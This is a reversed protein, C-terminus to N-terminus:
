HSFKLIFENTWTEGSELVLPFLPLLRTSQYLSNNYAFAIHLSYQKSSLLSIQVENKIDHIKLCAANNNDLATENEFRVYEDGKGAFSFNIEPVFRFTEIKKGLNTLKYSVTLVDKVLSYTKEIEINAFPVNRDSAPLRFCSKCKRNQSITEYQENFCLRSGAPFNKKKKKSKKETPLFVDAFALRRMANLSGCDLYNWDKPLYDLEFIGAGKLQIYCNIKNDQFLYEQEGNLNFDYQILSPTFKGKERSLCEARLLSGYATKRLENRSFGHGPTFLVSDQAKMLEERANQKRSKDGKLQSILVNVFIMKCYISNIEPNEILFRRPIFDKIFGSSSSFSAKKYTQRSKIIKGPLVTETLSQSQNIEEFFRNWASDPSENKSSLIKEPFISIIMGEQSNSNEQQRNKLDTFTESISKKALTDEITGSVPFVVVLKGQDETICPNYLDNGSIGAQIFQDQSLFTYSMDSAALATTLHQEWAMYPIWCGAPRKGFHKRLYTTLLEIQGIRDQLPILPLIPEYFGGGIIEAQKKSVIDEILM